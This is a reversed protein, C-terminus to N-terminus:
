LRGRRYPAILALAEPPIAPVEGTGDGRHEYWRAVIARVAQRLPMPVDAAAEGYGATVDIEIGSFPRGPAPLAAAPMLRPPEALTDVHFHTAPVATAAGAADFVRAGDLRIVPSLPLRIPGAAPWRDLVLRWTQAVLCRGSEAEVMLRAATMLSTILRDEDDHDLRLYGKIDALTVPEAAPGTLLLPTM